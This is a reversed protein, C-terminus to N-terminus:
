ILKSNQGYAMVCFQGCTSALDLVCHLFVHLVIFEDNFILSCSCCLYGHSMHRLSVILFILFMNMTERMQLKPMTKCPTQSNLCFRHIVIISKYWVSTCVIFFGSFLGFCELKIISFWIHNLLANRVKLLLIYLQTQWVNVFCNKIKFKELAKYVDVIYSYIWTNM